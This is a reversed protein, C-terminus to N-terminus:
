GQICREVVRRYGDFKQQKWFLKNTELADCMKAAGWGEVSGDVERRSWTKHVRTRDSCPTFMDKKTEKGERQWRRWTQSM